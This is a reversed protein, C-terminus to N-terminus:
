WGCGTLFTPSNQTGEGLGVSIAGRLDQIWWGQSGRALAGVQCGGVWFFSSMSDAPAAPAETMREGSLSPSSFDLDAGVARM